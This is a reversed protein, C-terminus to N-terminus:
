RMILPLWLTPPRNAFTHSYPGGGSVVTFDAWTAGQPTWGARYHETVTCAGPKTVTWTICGNELTRGSKPDPGVLTMLWDKIAAGATNQKCATLTVDKFNVFTHSYPGGGSVVTFDASAAGQHTWGVRDEETVTYVGPKTVTWTICGNELTQGSKPDPGALTMLWDKIAAGETNQKCATLTVDQFNFFTHNYPGGDSIVTFDASAAGQHTWGAQDEETVTYAGPQTVAWTICGGEVTRGSKPEPGALTMLWDQISAGETNQKFATIRMGSDLYRAVAFDRGTDSSEPNAEGVVVIRGMADLATDLAVDYNESEGGLNTTVKGGCGFEPDLTGNDLYRAV